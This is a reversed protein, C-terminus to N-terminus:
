AIAQKIGRALQIMEKANLIVSEAFKEGGHVVRHGVADIESLSAVAGTKPNHLADLVMQIAEKHTPMPAETIEKDLGEKQYVLRGDIGIRECLGKALVEESDSNILQYKLSSSGCNIVLVNM